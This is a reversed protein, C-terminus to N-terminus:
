NNTNINMSSSINKLFYKESLIGITGNRPDDQNFIGTFTTKLDVMMTQYNKYSELNLIQNHQKIKDFRPDQGNNTKNIGTGLLWHSYKGRGVAGAMEDYLEPGLKGEQYKTIWAADRDQYKKEIQQLLMWCQKAHLEPLDGSLYFLEFSGDSMCCEFMRDNIQMYWSNDSITLKPRDAGVINGVKIGQHDLVFVDSRKKVLESFNNPQFWWGQTADTPTIDWWNKKFVQQYDELTLTANTIKTKTHKVMEKAIPYVVNRMEHDRFDDFQNHFIVIEDILINNDVFTKLIHHSDRGGSYWLRLWPYKHRLQLARTKSLDDWTATPEENWSFNKFEKDFFAFKYASGSRRIEQWASISNLFKKGGVDYHCINNWDPTTLM